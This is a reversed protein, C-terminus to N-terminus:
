LLSLWISLRKKSYFDVRIPRVGHRRCAPLDIESMMARDPLRLAALVSDAVDDASLIKEVKKQDKRPSFSTDVSGPCITIVKINHERVELMMSKSFGMLAWKTAAYGSGDVFFNKGALSSIQVIIGGKQKEMLPLALQSCLFVSRVNLAWMSDFDELKFDRVKAFRGIGANNILIDLSRYKEWVYRFLERVQDDNTLDVSQVDAKGRDREIETKVSDLKEKSRAVLLVTSGAHGLQLAIVRGIGSSAGTVISVTGELKM